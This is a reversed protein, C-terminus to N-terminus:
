LRVLGLVFLLKDKRQARTEGVTKGKGDIGNTQKWKMGDKLPSSLHKAFHIFFIAVFYTFVFVEVRAKETTPSTPSLNIHAFPRRVIPNSGPGPGNPARKEVGLTAYLLANHQKKKRRFARAVTHHTQEPHAKKGLLFINRERCKGGQLRYM